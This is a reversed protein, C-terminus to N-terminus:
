KRIDEIPKCTANGSNFFNLTSQFAIM